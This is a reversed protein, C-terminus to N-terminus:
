VCYWGRTGKWRRVLERCLVGSHLILFGDVDYVNQGFWRTESIGVVNMGFKGFEQVVFLAKRNVAVDRGGRRAVVTM